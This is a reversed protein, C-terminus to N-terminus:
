LADALSLRKAPDTGRPELESAPPSHLRQPKENFGMAIWNQSADIASNNCACADLERVECVIGSYAM